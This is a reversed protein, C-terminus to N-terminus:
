KEVRWPVAVIKIDKGFFHQAYTFMMTNIREGLYAVMRTQLKNDYGMPQIYPLSYKTGEYIERISYFLIECIQDFLKKNCFFMNCSAVYNGKKLVDFMEPTFPIKKQKIVEWLVNMGIEGHHYVYQDYASVDFLQPSSVYITNEDYEINEIFSSDYFRRYQNTGVIPDTTNKWVWYLGTLDGLWINLDSINDGTDDFLFNKQSLEQRQEPTLRYSGCMINKQDFQSDRPEHGPFCHCYLTLDKM